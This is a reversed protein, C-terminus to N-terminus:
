GFESMFCSKCDIATSIADHCKCWRWKRKKLTCTSYNKFNHLKKLIFNMEKLSNEIIAVVMREQPM